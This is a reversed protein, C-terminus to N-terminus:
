SIKNLSLWFMEDTFKQAVKYITHLKHVEDKLQETRSNKGATSKGMYQHLRRLKRLDSVLYEYMEREAILQSLVDKERSLLAVEADSDIEDM